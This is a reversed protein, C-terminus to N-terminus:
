YMKYFPTYITHAIAQELQSSSKKLRLKTEVISLEKLLKDRFIKEEIPFFEFAEIYICNLVASKVQNQDDVMKLYDESPCKYYSGTGANQVYVLRM